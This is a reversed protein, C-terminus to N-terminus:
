REIEMAHIGYLNALHCLAATQETAFEARRAGRELLMANYLDGRARLEAAETRIFHPLRQATWSVISYAYVWRGEHDQLYWGEVADSDTAWGDGDRVHLMRSGCMLWIRRANAQETCDFWCCTAPLRSAPPAHPALQAHTYIPISM